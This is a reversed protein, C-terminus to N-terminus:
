QEPPLGENSGADSRFTERITPIVSHERAYLLATLASVGLYGIIMITKVLSHFFAFLAFFGVVCLLTVLLALLFTWPNSSRPEFLNLRLRPAFYVSTGQVLVQAAIFLVTLKVSGQAIMVAFGSPVVLAM